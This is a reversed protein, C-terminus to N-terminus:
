LTTVLFFGSGFFLPKSLNKEKQSQDYAIFITKNKKLKLCFIDKTYIQFYGISLLYKLFPV